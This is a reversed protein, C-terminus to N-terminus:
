MLPSPDSYIARNTPATNTYSLGGTTSSRGRLYDQITPNNILSRLSESVGAMTNGSANLPTFATPRSSSLGVGMQSGSRPNLTTGVGAPNSKAIAALLNSSTDGGYSTPPTGPEASGAGLLATAPGLVSKSAADRENLSQQPAEFRANAIASRTAGQGQRALAGMLADNGSNGQRYGALMAMDGGRILPDTAQAVNREVLAARMSEPSRGQDTSYRNLLAQGLAREQSQAIGGGVMRDRANTGGIQSSELARTNEYGQLTRRREQNTKGVGVSTQRWTGTVPDFQVTNGDADTQTATAIRNVLKRQADEIIKAEDYRQNDLAQQRGNRLTNLMDVTQSQINMRRNEAAQAANMKNSASAANGAQVAGYVGTGAGVVAAAAIAATIAM